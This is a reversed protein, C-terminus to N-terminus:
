FKDNDYVPKGGKFQKILDITKNTSWTEQMQDYSLGSKGYVPPNSIGWESDMLHATIIM